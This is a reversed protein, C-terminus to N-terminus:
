RAQPDDFGVLQGIRRFHALEDPSFDLMSIRHGFVGSKEDIVVESGTQLSAMATLWQLTEAENMAIGLRQASEIIRQLEETPTPQTPTTM